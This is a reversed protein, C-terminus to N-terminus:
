ATMCVDEIHQMDQKSIIKAQRAFYKATELNDGSILRVKINGKESLHVAHKSSPRLEDKMAIATILTLDDFLYLDKQQDDLYFHNNPKELLGDFTMLDFDRYAFAIVRLGKKTYCDDIVKEELEKRDEDSFYTSQGQENIISKCAPFLKEHAGKIFVRTKAELPYQVAVASFKDKTSFPIQYICPFDFKRKNIESHLPIGADQLFKLLAVDTNNGIPEYCSEDNIEMRADTNFFISDEVLDLVNEPLNINYISNSRQNERDHECIYFNTIKLNGTTLTGTKGILIEEIRASKEPVDIAKILLGDNKM